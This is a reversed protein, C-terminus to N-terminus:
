ASPAPWDHALCRHGPEDSYPLALWWRQWRDAPIRAPPISAFLMMRAVDDAHGRDGLVRVLIDVIRAYHQQFIARFDAEDWHEASSKRLAMSRSLTQATGVMAGAKPSVYRFRREGAFQSLKSFEAWELPAPVDPRLQGLLM